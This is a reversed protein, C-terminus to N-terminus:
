RGNRRAKRTWAILLNAAYVAFVASAVGTLIWVAIFVLSDTVPVRLRTLTGGAWNMAAFSYALTFFGVITRLQGAPLRRHAIYMLVPLAITVLFFLIDLSLEATYATIPTM